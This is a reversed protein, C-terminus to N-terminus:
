PIEKIDAGLKRLRASLHEYGRDISYTGRLVSRGKAALMGIVLITAPRLAPPCMIEAGKLPTPGTIFVRHPDALHIEAGLKAFEMYYIARNEFVWDHILTTGRAQSAIPVFFPLNDIGLGPFPRGYIKDDLATLKGPKTRLDVLTFNGSASRYRRLVRCAFGMKELKLLELKLFDEPCGIITLPSKTTASLSLWFIAETPDPILHYRAGHLKRVGTVVLTTTGIGDIKAGMATLLYCLDQVQYNASALTITTVGRALVAAFLANETPTDGSEYMTIDAGRVIAGRQVQYAFHTTKIHVGFKELAYFHPLVTRRGLQCGGSRPIGFRSTRHLLSGLLLLVSRTRVAAVADIRTLQLRTPARLELNRGRWRVKVGISSLVKAMSDVEAIRPAMKIVLPDTTLLAACMASVASNKATRVDATGSLRKGGNILYTAM